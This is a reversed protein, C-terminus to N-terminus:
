NDYWKGAVRSGISCMRVCLLVFVKDRVLAQVAEDTLYKTM